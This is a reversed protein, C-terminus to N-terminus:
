APVLAAGARNEFEATPAPRQWTDAAPDYLAHTRGALAAVGDRLEPPHTIEILSLVDAPTSPRARWSIGVAPLPPQQDLLAFGGGPGYTSYIPV